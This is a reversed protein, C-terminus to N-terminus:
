ERAGGDIERGFQKDMEVLRRFAKEYTERAEGTLLRCGMAIRLPVVGDLILRRTGIDFTEGKGWRKELADLQARISHGEEAM